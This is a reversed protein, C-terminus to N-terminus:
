PACWCTACTARTAPTTRESCPTSSRRRSTAHQRGAADTTVFPAVLDANKKGERLVLFRALLPIDELRRSLPVTYVTFM